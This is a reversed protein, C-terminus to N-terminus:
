PDIRVTRGEQVTFEFTALPPQPRTRARSANLIGCSGVEVQSTLCVVGLGDGGPLLMRFAGDSPLEVCLRWVIISGDAAFACLTLGDGVANGNVEITGTVVGVTPGIDFTHATAVGNKLTVPEAQALEVGGTGGGGYVLHLDYSGSEVGYTIKSDVISGLAINGLVAKANGSTLLLDMAVSAGTASVPVPTGGQETYVVNVELVTTGVEITGLDRTLGEDVTFVFTGLPPQPRTRARSANLIGCSGVEVQSTLCVVGLGDGGPLLMRFAGDSPLEVCLRWVIISGDAAFACLTLGDGVANGNVEITGTVVGVTPGIDFTHATAVGNKLTVPEAQALEVGGTGGGGYVLHLDYSGSEVGYTIKSDVISGLAINGLVAKANGSTLLLDMAVSAGTASVPVPTGGQETYVVNVELVTTEVLTAAVQGWSPFRDNGSHSTIQTQGTGDANMVYVDATTAFQAFREFALRTGDPSWTPASTAASDNTLNTLQSGDVNIVHIDLIGARTSAFAIRTGDPSWAASGNIGSVNTLQVETLGNADILYVDSGTGNNRHFVIRNGDPSWDPSLDSALDTTLRTLGTGDVNIVYIDVNSGFRTFAIRDGDPSWAPGWDNASNNTIRTPVAGDSHMIYIEQNGDRDSTFAISSGDPSWAPFEDNAPNATLNTVGGGGPGVTYIDWDGTRDSAFTILEACNDTPCVSVQFSPPQTPERLASLDPGLHEQCATLLLTVSIIILPKRVTPEQRLTASM